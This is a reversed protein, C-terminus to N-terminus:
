AMSGTPTEILVRKGEALVADNATNWTLDLGEAIRAVTLHQVVLAELAWRLGRRSLKARPDAARTTEQRWVRGCGTCRYRRM